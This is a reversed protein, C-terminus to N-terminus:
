SYHYVQLGLVQSSLCSSWSLACDCFGTLFTPLSSFWVAPPASACRWLLAFRPATQSVGSVPHGGGNRVLTKEELLSERSSLKTDATFEVECNTCGSLLSVISLLLWSLPPVRVAPLPFLPDRLQSALSILNALEPCWHSVRGWFILHLTISSCWLWDWAEVLVCVCMHVYLYLCVYM